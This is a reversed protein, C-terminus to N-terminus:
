MIIRGRFFFETEDYIGYTLTLIRENVLNDIFNQRHKDMGKLNYKGNGLPHFRIKKYKRELLDVIFEYNNNAFNMEIRIKQLKM